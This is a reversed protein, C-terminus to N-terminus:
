LVYDNLSSFFKLHKIKVLIPKRVLSKKFPLCDFQDDQEVTAKFLDDIPVGDENFSEKKPLYCKLVNMIEDVNVFDKIIVLYARM